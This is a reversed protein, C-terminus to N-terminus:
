FLDSTSGDPGPERVAYDASAILVDVEVTAPDFV